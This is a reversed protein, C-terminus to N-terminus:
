LIYDVTPTMNTDIVWCDIGDDRTIKEYNFALEECNYPDITEMDFWGLQNGDEIHSIGLLDYYDNLCAYGRNHILELFASEARLVDEMTSEFFQLSQYEFFLEKGDNVEMDDGIKSEVLGKKVNVDADEGYLEKVKARYEKYSNDLLAYVSMLSAQNKVSLYNIGFICAITSTGVLAAPIYPKWATKIVEVPTLEGGKEQKADELLLLAKPTAKVALVSTGVVGAAGAVTLITSSHKKLFYQTKNM